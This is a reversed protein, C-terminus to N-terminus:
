VQRHHDGGDLTSKTLMKPDHNFGGGTQNMMMQM